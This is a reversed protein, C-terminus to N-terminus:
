RGMGEMDMRMEHLTVPAGQPPFARLRGDGEWPAVRVETVWLGLERAAALFPGRVASVLGALAADQTYLACRCPLRRGKRAKGGGVPALEEVSAACVKDLVVQANVGLAICFARKVTELRKRQLSSLGDEQCGAAVSALPRSDRELAEAEELFPHRERMGRRSAIIRVEEVHIGHLRLTQRLQEKRIGVESRISADSICVEAVPYPEDKGPGKRPAEDNRVYFANTARLVYIAGLKNRKWIDKVADAYARNNRAITMALAQDPMEQAIHRSIAADVKIMEAKGFTM